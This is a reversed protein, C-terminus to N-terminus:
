VFPATCQYSTIISVGTPRVVEDSATEEISSVSHLDTQPLAFMYWPRSSIGYWPLIALAAATAGVLEGLVYYPLAAASTPCSFVIPSAIARAPNLAAGTFQGVAMATSLLSLGVILPGTNGYGSKKQTYWVVSFIPVIFCFTGVAEWGFIQFHTLDPDPLFCGNGYQEHMQRIRMRPVLASIWLAGLICGSIQAAWYLGLEWPPTHGLLLFTLTVAPNMHAGSVKALFYVISMLAIGNAEPTPSVSGIFHFIMCGMTEALARSMLGRRQDMPEWGLWRAVHSGLRSILM